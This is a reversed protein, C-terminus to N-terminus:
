RWLLQKKIIKMQMTFGDLRASDNIKPLTELHAKM